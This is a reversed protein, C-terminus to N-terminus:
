RRVASFGGPGSQPGTFSVVHTPGLLAAMDGITHGDTNHWEGVIREVKRLAFSPLFDWEAGETDVKMYALDGDATLDDLTIAPYQVENHPLSQDVLTVNGVFAHHTAVEDGRYAYAVTVTQGQAGVAGMVVTVRGGVRNHDVNYEILDVNDPVPEIITVALQPNDLALAIGVSGLYGGVDVARGTLDRPLAYEDQNLSSWLTNWDNTNDRYRMAVPRGGPTLFSGQRMPYNV